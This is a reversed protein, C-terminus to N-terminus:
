KARSVSECLNGPPPQRDLESDLFEWIVCQAASVILFEGQVVQGHQSLLLQDACITANLRAVCSDQPNTVDQGPQVASIVVVSGNPATFRIGVRNRDPKIRFNAVANSNTVRSWRRLGLKEDEYCM